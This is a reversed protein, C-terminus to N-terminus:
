APRSGGGAVSIEIQMAEAIAALIHEKRETVNGTWRRQHVPTRTVVDLVYRLLYSVSAKHAVLNDTVGALAFVANEEGPFITHTRRRIAFPPTNRDKKSKLTTTDVWAVSQPGDSYSGAPAWQVKSTTM